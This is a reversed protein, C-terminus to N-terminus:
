SVLRGEGLVSPILSASSAASSSRSVSLTQELATRDARQGFVERGARGVGIVPVRSGRVDAGPAPDVFSENPENMTMALGRGSARARM